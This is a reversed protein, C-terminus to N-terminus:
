HWLLDDKRSIKYYIPILQKVRYRAKGITLAFITGLKRYHFFTCM